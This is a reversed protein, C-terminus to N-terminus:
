AFWRESSVVQELDAHSLPPEPALLPADKGDAANYSIAFVEWGGALFLSVGRGSVGGDVAPGTEDWTVLTSGDPRETCVAGGAAGACMDQASMEGRVAGVSTLTGNWLFHAIQTGTGADMLGGTREPAAAVSGPLLDAVLGPIESARVALRAPPGSASPTSTPAPVSSPISTPPGTSSTTDEASTPRSSDAALLPVVVAGAGVVGLVAVAALASGIWHARAATPAVPEEHRRSM